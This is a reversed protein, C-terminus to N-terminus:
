SLTVQNDTKYIFIMERM